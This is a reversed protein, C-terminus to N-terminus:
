WVDESFLEKGHISNGSVVQDAEIAIEMAEVRDVFRGESTIFGQTEECGHAYLSDLAFGAKQMVIFVDGHRSPVWKDAVCVLDGYRIASNVIRESVAPRGMTAPRAVADVPGQRLEPLHPDCRATRGDGDSWGEM